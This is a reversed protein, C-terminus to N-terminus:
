PEVRASAAALLPELVAWVTALIAPQAEARPHIGDTQMLTPEGAVGELLFPVLPVGHRAALEGYLAHFKETYRPGYNPPIRMAVLIPVAGAQRTLDVLAALNNELERLPLGRLGDNGGLELIVLAPRHQALLGPLRALGGYSTDGSISANVVRHPFGQEALRRELLSVWGASVEMGYASSLSDGVILLTPAPAALLPWSGWVLCFLLFGRYSLRQFM